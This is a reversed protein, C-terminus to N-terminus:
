KDPLQLVDEKRIQYTYPEVLGMLHEVNKHGIIDGRDDVILYKAEFDIWNKEGIILDSLMAYQMYLDKISEAPTGTLLIKYSTKDCCAKIRKSRKAFPTKCNHSEDIIIMTDKDCYDLTQLVEIESFSMTELGTLRWEINSNKCWLDIQEQFNNKTSVPCFVQVKKIQGAEFRSVALDIAIKSKGTGTDAFLASVKMSCCFRLAQAQHLLSNEHVPIIDDSLREHLPTKKR